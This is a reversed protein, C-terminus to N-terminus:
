LGYNAVQLHPLAKEENDSRGRVRRNEEEWKRRENELRDEWSRTMEKMQWENQSILSRIDDAFIHSVIFLCIKRKKEM